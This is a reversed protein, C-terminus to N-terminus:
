DMGWGCNGIIEVWNNSIGFSVYDDHYIENVLRITELDYFHAWECSVLKEKVYDPKYLNFKDELSKMVRPLKGMFRSNVDEDDARLSTPYHSYRFGCHRSIPRYDSELNFDNTEYLYKVFNRFEGADM